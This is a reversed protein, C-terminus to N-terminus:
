LRNGEQLIYQFANKQITKALTFFVIPSCYLVTIYKTTFKLAYRFPTYDLHLTACVVVSIRCVVTYDPHIAYQRCYVITLIFNGYMLSLGNNFQHKHTQQQLKTTQKIKRLM